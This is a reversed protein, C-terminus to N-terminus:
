QRSAMFASGGQGATMENLIHHLNPLVTVNNPTRVLHRVHNRNWQVGVAPPDEAHNKHLTAVEHVKDTRIGLQIPEGELETEIVVIRSDPTAEGREMGFALRLDVVPIIKGRYNVVSGVLPPAGPVHTEPLLDVIESVMAAELALREEGLDFTLVELEGTETWSTLSADHM